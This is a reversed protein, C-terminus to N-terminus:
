HDNIKDMHNILDAYHNRLIANEALTTRLEELVKAHEKMQEDANHILQQFQDMFSIRPQPNPHRTAIKPTETNLTEQTRDRMMPPQSRKMNRLFRPGRANDDYEHSM